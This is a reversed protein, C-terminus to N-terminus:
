DREYNNISKKTIYSVYYKGDASGNASTYHGFFFKRYTGIICNGLIEKEFLEKDEGFLYFDGTHSGRPTTINVYNIGLQRLAEECEFTASFSGKTSVNIEKM